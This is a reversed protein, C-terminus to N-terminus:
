SDEMWKLILETDELSDVLCTPRQVAITERWEPRRCVILSKSGHEAAIRADNPTDGVLIIDPHLFVEGLEEWAVEPVIWLLDSRNAADDGFVGFVFDEWINFRELKVRAGERLNGSLLAVAWGKERCSDVLNKADDYLFPEDYRPYEQRLAQLYGALITEVHDLIHHERIKLHYLANRIIVPDTFGAVDEVTLHPSQGVAEMVAQDLLKRALTGPYLLTGDIDFLILRRKM